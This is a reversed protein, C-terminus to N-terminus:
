APLEYLSVRSEEALLGAGSAVQWAVREDLGPIAWEGLKRGTLIDRVEILAGSVLYLKGSDASIAVEPIEDV